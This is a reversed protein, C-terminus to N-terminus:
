RSFKGHELFESVNELASPYYMLFSHLGPLIIHDKAGELKTEEVRVIGDNDGSVLPGIGREKGTGGAIIGIELIDSATPLDLAQLERLSPGLMRALLPISGVKVAFQSGQNPPGLMVARGFTYQDRYNSAFSRMVISGLSHTVFNLERDRGVEAKEIRRALRHAHQDISRLLSAYNHNIVQYGQKRLKKQLVLMSLSTRGLGHLLIVTRKM